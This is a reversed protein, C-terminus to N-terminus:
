SKMGRVPEVSYAYILKIVLSLYLIQVYTSLDFVAFLLFGALLNFFIAIIEQHNRNKIFTVLVNASVLLVYVYFGFRFETLTLFPIILAHPHILVFIKKLFPHKDYYDHTSPNFNAIMGAYIDIMLAVLIIKRYLELVRFRYDSIYITLLTMGIAFILMFIIFFVTSEEGFFPHLFTPMKRKKV